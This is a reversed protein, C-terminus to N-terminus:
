SCSLRLSRRLGADQRSAVAVADLLVAAAGLLFSRGGTGISPARSPWGLRQRALYDQVALGVRPATESACGGASCCSCSLPYASCNAGAASLVM